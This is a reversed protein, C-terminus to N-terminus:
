KTKGEIGSVGFADRLTRALKEAKAESKVWKSRVKWRELAISVCHHTGSEDTLSEVLVEMSESPILAAM